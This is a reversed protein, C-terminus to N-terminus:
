LINIRGAGGNQRKFERAGRAFLDGAQQDSTIPAYNNIVIGQEGFAGLGGMSNVRAAGRAPDATVTPAVATLEKVVKPVSEKIQDAATTTGLGIGSVTEIAQGALAAIKELAMEYKGDALKELAENYKEQAEALQLMVDINKTSVDNLDEQKEKVKDTAKIEAQRLEEKRELLDNIRKAVNEAERQADALNREAQEVNRDSGVAEDRLENLRQQALQLELTKIESGDQEDTLRQIAEVQRLIALREEATVEKAKEKAKALAEEKNKVDENANALDDNAMAITEDIDLLSKNIDVLDEKAQQLARTASKERDLIATISSRASQLSSLNPILDKQIAEAEERAVRAADQTKAILGDLMDQERAIENRGDVRAPTLQNKYIDAYHQAMAASRQEQIELARERDTLEKAVSATGIFKDALHDQSVGYKETIGTAEQTTTNFHEIGDVGMEVAGVVIDLVKGLAAFGKELIPLLVPALVSFLDAVRQLIPALEKMIPAFGTGVEKILNSFVPLLETAIPLLEEGLEAQVQQLEGRVKNLRGAFSESEANLYGQSVATKEQILSLTALAKEQQTVQAYNSKGTQLFARAKVDAELITVGYTKLSEREGLLAKTFSEIVPKAGGQVNNFAATDGALIALEESLKASEEQTFGIGQTIAGTTKLLDKLEFDALGAKNAFEEIFPSLNKVANGFTVDFATAAETANSATQIAKVGAATAAAGVIGFGTVAASGVKGVSRSFKGLATDSKRISRLLSDADGIFAYRLRKEAM